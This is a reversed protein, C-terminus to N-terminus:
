DQVAARGFEVRWVVAARLRGSDILLSLAGAGRQRLTEDSLPPGVVEDLARQLVAKCAAGIMNAVRLPLAPNLPDLHRRIIQKAVDEMEPVAGAFFSRQPTGIGFEHLAAVEATPTGDPYPPSDPTWGIRVGVPRAAARRVRRQLADLKRDLREAGIIKLEPGRRSM